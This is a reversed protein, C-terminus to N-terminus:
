QSTPEKTQIRQLSQGELHRKGKCVKEGEPPVDVDPHNDHDRKHFVNHKDFDPPKSSKEFKAQLVEKAESHKGLTTHKGEVDVYLYGRIQYKRLGTHKEMRMLMYRMMTSENIDKDISSQGVVDDVRVIENDGSFVESWRVGAVEGGVIVVKTVENGLVVEESLGKTVVKTKYHRKTTWHRNIFIYVTYHCNIITKITRDFYVCSKRDKGVWGSEEEVDEGVMEPSYRRRGM